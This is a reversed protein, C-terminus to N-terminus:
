PVPQPAATPGLVDPKGNKWVLQDIWMFRGPPELGVADSPWAHYVLWDDGEDDRVISQHGPGAAGNDTTLIPNEPADKCPGVPGRCTAYGTAYQDTNFANASYFLYYKGDHKWMTPAEVLNGEWPADETVLRTRKGMLQLGDPSLPQAYIYTPMGLRNGDNKWLLYQKGDTDRFPNADISGGEEPQCVLPENSNDVFPGTPSSAIARGICQLFTERSEATYYLIYKGDKRRMVEPAWTKGPEVWPALVPMADPAQEWNVLDPSTLMQVNGREGNTAYAYYTKGARLVFPDPFNSEYVPNVFQGPGPTAASTASPAVQPQETAAPAASTALPTPQPQETAEPLHTAVTARAAASNPVTASASAGAGPGDEGGGCAVLMVALVILVITLRSSLSRTSM